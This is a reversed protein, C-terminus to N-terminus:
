ESAQIEEWNLIDENWKYYKPNEPDFVPYEIPPNWKYLDNDFIWSDFLKEPIPALIWSVTDENWTYKHPIEEPMSIPPEWEGLEENKIWSPHPKLEWFKSGDYTGGIVLKHWDFNEDDIVVIEDLNFESIFTSLLEESPNDFVGTNVVENNKIYAYIKETM